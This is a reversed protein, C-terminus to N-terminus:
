FLASAELFRNLVSFCAEFSFEYLSWVYGLSLWVHVFSDIALTSTLVLGLSLRLGFGVPIPLFSSSLM